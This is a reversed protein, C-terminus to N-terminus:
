LKEKLKSQMDLIMANLAEVLEETFQNASDELRVYVLGKIAGPCIKQVQLGKSRLYIEYSMYTPFLKALRPLLIADCFM